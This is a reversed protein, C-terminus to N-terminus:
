ATKRQPKNSVEEGNQVTAAHKEKYIWDKYYNVYYSGDILQGDERFLIKNKAQDYREKYKEKFRNYYIQHYDSTTKM